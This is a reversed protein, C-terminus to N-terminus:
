RKINNRDFPRNGNEFDKISMYIREGFSHPSNRGNEDRWYKRIIEPHANGFELRRALSRLISIYQFNSSSKELDTKLGEIQQILKQVGKENLEILGNVRNFTINFQKMTKKQITVCGFLNMDNM